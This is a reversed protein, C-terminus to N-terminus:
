SNRSWRASKRAAARSYSKPRTKRVKGSAQRSRESWPQTRGCVIVAAAGIAAVSQITDPWTDFFVGVVILAIVMLMAFEVANRFIREPVKM